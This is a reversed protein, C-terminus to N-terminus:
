RRPSKVPGLKPLLDQVAELERILGAPLSELVRRPLRISYIALNGNMPFPEIRRPRELIWRYDDCKASYRCDVMRVIGIAMGTVYRPDDYDCNRPWKARPEKKCAHILLPGRYRRLMKRYEIRKEGSAIKDAYPQKVSIAAIKM